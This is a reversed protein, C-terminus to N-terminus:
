GTLPDLAVGLPPNPCLLTHMIYSLRLRKVRERYTCISLSKTQVKRWGGERLDGGDGGGGGFM